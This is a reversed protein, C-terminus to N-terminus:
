SKGRWLFRFFGKKTKHEGRAGKRVRDQDERHEELHRLVPQAAVGSQSTKGGDRRHKEIPARPPVAREQAVISQSNRIVPQVLIKMKGKFEGGNLLQLLFINPGSKPRYSISAHTAQIM